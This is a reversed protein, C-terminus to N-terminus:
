LVLIGEDEWWWPRAVQRSRLENGVGEKRIHQTINERRILSIRGWTNWSWDERLREFAKRRWGDWRQPHTM